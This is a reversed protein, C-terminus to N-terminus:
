SQQKSHECQFIPHYFLYEQVKAHWEQASAVMSTFLWSKACAYAAVLKCSLHQIRVVQANVYQM